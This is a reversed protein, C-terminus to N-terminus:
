GLPSGGRGLSLYSGDGHGIGLPLLLKRTDEGNGSSEVEFTMLIAMQVSGRIAPRIAVGDCSVM